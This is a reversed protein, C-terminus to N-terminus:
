TTRNSLSAPDLSVSRCIRFTEFRPLFIPCYYIKEHQSFSTLFTSPALSGTVGSTDHRLWQTSHFNSLVPSFARVPPFLCFVNYHLVPFCIDVPSILQKQLKLIRFRPFSNRLIETPSFLVKPFYMFLNHFPSDAIVNKVLSANALVMVFLMAVNPAAHALFPPLPPASASRRRPSPQPGFYAAPRGCPRGM